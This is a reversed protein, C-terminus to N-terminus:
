STSAVEVNGDSLEVVIRGIMDDYWEIYCCSEDRSDGDMSIEEVRGVQNINFTNMYQEEDEIGMGTLKLKTGQITPHFDGSLDLLVKQPMGKFKMWGTVKGRVSNDLEGEILYDSPRWAM